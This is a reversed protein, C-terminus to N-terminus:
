PRDFTLRSVSPVPARQPGGFAVLYPNFVQGAQGGTTNPTSDFRVPYWSRYQSFSPPHHSYLRENKPNRENQIRIIFSQMRKVIHGVCIRSWYSGDGVTCSVNKGDLIPGTSFISSSATDRM